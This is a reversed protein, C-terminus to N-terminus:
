LSFLTFTTVNHNVINKDLVYLFNSMNHKSAITMSANTDDKICQICGDVSSQSIIITTTPSIHQQIYQECEKKIHPELYLRDAAKKDIQKNSYLYLEITHDITGQTQWYSEVNFIEGILSNYTPILIFDIEKIECAHILDNFTPYSRHIGRFNATIVENSFTGRGFLYGIRIDNMYKELYTVQIQKSMDMIKLYIPNNYRNIIEKEIDRDTILKLLDNKKNLYHFPNCKFKINAVKESLAYRMSIMMILEEENMCGKTIEPINKDIELMYNTIACNNNLTAPKEPVTILTNILKDYDRIHRRIDALTTIDLITTTDLLAFLSKTTAIDICADTISVGPILSASLPQNGKKINM